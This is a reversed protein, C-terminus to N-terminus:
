IRRPLGAQWLAKRADPTNLARLGQESWYRLSEDDSRLHEVFVPFAAPLKAECLVGFLIRRVREDREASCAAVLEAAHGAAQDRLEACLIEVLEGKVNRRRLLEVCNAVGPFRPHQRKWRTYVPDEAM